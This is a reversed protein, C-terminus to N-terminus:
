HKVGLAASNIITKVRCLRKILPEFLIRFPFGLTQSDTALFGEWPEKSIIEILISLSVSSFRPLCNKM